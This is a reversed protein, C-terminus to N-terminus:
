RPMIPVHGACRTIFAGAAAPVNRDAFICVYLAAFAGILVAILVIVVTVAKRGRRKEENERANKDEDALPKHDIDYEVVTIGGSSGARSELLDKEVKETIGVNEQVASHNEM